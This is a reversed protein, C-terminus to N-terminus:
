FFDLAKSKAKSGVVSYKFESKVVSTFLDVTGSRWKLMRLNNKRKSLVDGSHM